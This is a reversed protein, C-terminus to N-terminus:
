FYFAEQYVDAFAWDVELRTLSGRFGGFTGKPPKAPRVCPRKTGRLLPPERGSRLTRRSWSALEHMNHLEQFGKCDGRKLWSFHFSHLNLANKFKCTVQYYATLAPHDLRRHKVDVIVSVTQGPQKSVPSLKPWIWPHPHTILLWLTKVLKAWVLYLFTVGLTDLLGHQERERM